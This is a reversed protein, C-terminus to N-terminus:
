LGLREKVIKVQRRSVYDTYENQLVVRLAGGFTADFQKIKRLNVICSQNIKVFFDPLADELQYLRSRVTFSDNETTAIIKNGEVSFCFIDTLNLPIAIKDQDYGILSIGDAAALKEIEDILPTHTHAFVCIEEERNPDIVVTCKM